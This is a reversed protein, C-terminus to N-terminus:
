ELADLRQEIQLLLAEQASVKAELQQIRTEKEDLQHQQEQMARTLYPILGVYNLGLFSVENGAPMEGAAVAEPDAAPHLQQRVLEPFVQGLEQAVFGVQTGQPLHM